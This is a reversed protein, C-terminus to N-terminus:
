EECWRAVQIEPGLAQLTRRTIWPVITHLFFGACQRTQHTVSACMGAIGIHSSVLRSGSFVVRRTAFLSFMALLRSWGYSWSLFDSSCMREAAAEQLDLSSCFGAFSLAISAQLATGLARGVQYSEGGVGPYRYNLKDRQRASFEQLVSFLAM